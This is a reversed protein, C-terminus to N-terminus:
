LKAKEFKLWWKKQSRDHVVRKKLGDPGLLVAHFEYFSLLSLSEWGDDALVSSVNVKPRLLTGVPFPPTIPTDTDAVRYAAM